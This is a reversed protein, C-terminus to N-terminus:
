RIKKKKDEFALQSESDCEFFQKCLIDFRSDRSKEADASKSGWKAQGTSGDSFRFQISYVNEDKLIDSEVKKYCVSISNINVVAVDNKLLAENWFPITIFRM